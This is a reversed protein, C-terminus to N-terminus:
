KLGLEKRLRALGLDTPHLKWADRLRERAVEPKGGAWLARVWGRWLGVRGPNLQCARAYLREALEWDKDITALRARGALAIPNGPGAQVAHDFYKRAGPADGAREALIGLGVWPKSYAPRLETARLLAEQALDLQGSRLAEQGLGNWVVANGPTRSARNQWYGESSLFAPALPRLLLLAAVWLTILVGLQTRIPLLRPLFLAAFCLPLYLFRPAFLEPAPIVQLWPLLSCGFGVVAAREFPGWPKAQTKRSWALRLVFALALGAGLLPIWRLAHLEKADLALPINWPVLLHGAALAMSKFGLYLRSGLGLDTLPGHPAGLAIPGLAHFRLATYLVLALLIAGRGRWMKPGLLVWYFAAFALGDEKVLLPLLSGFFALLPRWRGARHRDWFLLPWLGLLACLTSSRGAIWLVAETQIPHWAVLAVALLSGAAFRRSVFVLLMVVWLHLLVGTMHLLRANPTRDGVQWRFSLTVLPRYVGADGRHHWYDQTFARVAPAREGSDGFVLPNQHLTERDDYSFDGGWAFAGFLALVGVVILISGVSRSGGREM